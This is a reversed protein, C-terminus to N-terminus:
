NRSASSPLLLFSDKFIIASKMKKSKFSLQLLKGDHLTAVCSGLKALIKLLLYSDFKAFNHLYIKYGKYKKSSLFNVVDKVLKFSSEETLSNTCFSKTFKGDFLCILYPILNGNNNITEIDM